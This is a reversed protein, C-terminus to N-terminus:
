YTVAPTEEPHEVRSGLALTNAPMQEIWWLSGASGSGYVLTGAGRGIAKEIAAERIFESTKKGIQKAYESVRALDDRQFAVSVVVRSTKVPERVEPREFDWTEAKELERDRERSM